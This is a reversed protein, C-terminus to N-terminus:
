VADGSPIINEIYCQLEELVNLVEADDQFKALSQRLQRAFIDLGSPKGGRFIKEKYKEWEMVQDPKLTKPFNRAQYLFQLYKFREDEFELNLSAIADAKANRLEVRKQADNESIKAKALSAELSNSPSDQSLKLYAESIKKALGSAELAQLNKMVKKKDLKLRAASDKDLANLPAVVPMQKMDLVSFPTAIKDTSGIKKLRLSLDYASLNQWAAVDQRLDYVIWCDVRTPHEALVAALTTSSGFALNSFHNYIFPQQAIIAKVFDVQGLKLFHDFLKPQTKKVLRALEVTARVDAAASHAQQHEIKNAEALLSLTLRPKKRVEDYPWNIGGPRLDSALRLLYYVDFSAGAALMPAPEAFNRWHLWRMFQNDFSILNYGAFITGKLYAEKELWSIFQSENVGELNASQPLIKHTAIAGPSPLIDDSLKVYFEEPESLPQLDEDLRQGGFQMIRDYFPNLGTTELDYFYFAM